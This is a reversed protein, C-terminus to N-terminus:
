LQHRERAARSLHAHEPLREAAVVPEHALHSEPPQVVLQSGQWHCRIKVGTKPDVKDILGRSHFATSLNFFLHSGFGLERVLVYPPLDGVALVARVPLCTARCIGLGHAADTAAPRPTGSRLHLSSLTFHTSRLSAYSAQRTAARTNAGRGGPRAITKACSHSHSGIQCHNLFCAIFFPAPRSPLPRLVPCRPPTPAPAPLRPAAHKRAGETPKTFALCQEPTVKAGAM